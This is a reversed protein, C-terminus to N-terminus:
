ETLLYDVITCIVNLIIIGLLYTPLSIAEIYTKPYVISHNIIIVFVRIVSPDHPVTGIRHATFLILNREINPSLYQVTCSFLM